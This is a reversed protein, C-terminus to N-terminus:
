APEVPGVPPLPLFIIPPEGDPGPLPETDSPDAPTSPAGPAGDASPAGSDDVVTFSEPDVIELSHDVAPSVVSDDPAVLAVPAVVSPALPSVFGTPNLRRGLPEPAYRPIRFRRM